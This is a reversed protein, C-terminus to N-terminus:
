LDLISNAQVFRLDSVEEKGLDDIILLPVRICLDIINKASPLQEKEQFASIILRGSPNLYFVPESVFKVPCTGTEGSWRSSSIILL